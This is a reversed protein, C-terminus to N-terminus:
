ADLRETRMTAAVPSDLEDHVKSNHVCGGAGRHVGSEDLDPM